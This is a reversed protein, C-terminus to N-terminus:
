CGEKDGCTLEHPDSQCVALWTLKVREPFATCVQITRGGSDTEGTHITGDAMEIQYAQGAVPKGTVEDVARYQESYRRLSSSATDLAGARTANSVSPESDCWSCLRQLTAVMKHGCALDSGDYAAPPGALLAFPYGSTVNTPGCQGCLVSDGVRVLSRSSGDMCQIRWGDYGELAQGGATTPDGVVCFYHQAM